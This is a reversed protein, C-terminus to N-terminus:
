RKAKKKIQFSVRLIVLLMIACAAALISIVAIASDGEFFQNFDLLTANYAILGVALVILLTTFIKM